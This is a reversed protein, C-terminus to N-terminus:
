ATGYYALKVAAISQNNEAAVRAIAAQASMDGGNVLRDVLERLVFRNTALEPKVPRYRQDRFRIKIKLPTDPLPLHGWQAGPHGVCLGRILALWFKHEPNGGDTLLKHGGKLWELIRRAEDTVTRYRRLVDFYTPIRENTSPSEEFMALIRRKVLAPIPLGKRVTDILPRPNAADLYKVIVEGRAMEEDEGARIREAVEFEWETSPEDM